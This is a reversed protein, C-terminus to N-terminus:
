QNEATEAEDTSPAPDTVKKRAKEYALAQEIEATRAKTLGTRADVQGTEGKIGDILAGGFGGVIKFPLSVGELVPSPRDFEAKTARGGTFAYSTTTKILGTREVPMISVYRSDLAWLKVRTQPLKTSAKFTALREAATRKDRVSQVDARALVRLECARSSSVAVGSVTDGATTTAAPSCDASLAIPLTEHPFVVDADLDALTYIKSFPLTVDIAPLIETEPALADKLEQLLDATLRKSKKLAALAAKLKDEDHGAVTSMPLSPTVGLAEITGLSKAAAVAIDGLKHDGAGSISKPYGGEFEAVWHDASWDDLKAYLRYARGRDLETTEAISINFRQACLPVGPADPRSKAMLLVNLKARRLAQSQARDAAIFADIAKLIETREASTYTDQGIWNGLKAMFENHAQAFVLTAIRDSAYAKRLGDCWATETAPPKEKEEAKPKEAPPPVNVTNNVVVSPSAADKKEDGAPASITVTFTSQALGYEGLLRSEPPADKSPSYSQVMPASACGTLLACGALTWIKMISGRRLDGHYNIFRQEM